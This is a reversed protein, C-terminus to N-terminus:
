DASFGSGRRLSELPAKEKRYQILIFLNSASVRRFQAGDRGLVFRPSRADEVFELRKGRADTRKLEPTFRSLWDGLSM